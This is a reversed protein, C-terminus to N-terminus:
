SAAAELPRLLGARLSLRMAPDDVLEDVYALIADVADRRTGDTIQWSRHTSSDYYRKIYSGSAAFRIDGLLALACLWARESLASTPTRRIYLAQRHVPQTRILGKFAGRYRWNWFIDALDPTGTTSSTGFKEQPNLEDLDPLRNGDLDEAFTPGFCLVTNRDRTMVDRLAVLSAPDILDDHMVIRFFPTQVVEILGNINHVWDLGDTSQFTRFRPWRDFRAQLIDLTDDAGHRDSVLVHIGAELLPPILAQLNTLFRASKYLPILVSVDQM